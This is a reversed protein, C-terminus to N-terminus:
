FGAYVISHLLSILVLLNTYQCFQPLSTGARNPPPVTRFRWPGQSATAMRPVLDPRGCARRWGSSWNASPRHAAVDPFRVSSTGDSSLIQPASGPQRILLPASRILPPMPVRAAVPSLRCRSFPPLSLCARDDFLHFRFRGPSCRVAPARQWGQLGNQNNM